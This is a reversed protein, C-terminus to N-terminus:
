GSGHLAAASHVRAAVMTSTPWREASLAFEDGFPDEGEAEWLDIAVGTAELALALAAEPGSIAYEM